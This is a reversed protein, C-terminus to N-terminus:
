HLIVGRTFDADLFETVESRVDLVKGRGVTARYIREMDNLEPQSMNVATLHESDTMIDICHDVRGCFHMVGGGFEALVREDCPKVFEAYIEPSLNVLSDGRLVVGGKFFRGWHAMYRGDGRPPVLEFWRKMFHVYTDTLLEMLAKVDDPRDYFALLLHSGLLLEAIDVPGQLDPHYIWVAESLKPYPALMEKFYEGTEFVQRGWGQRKYV